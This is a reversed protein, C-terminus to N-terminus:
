DILCIFLELLFLAIFFVVGMEVAASISDQGSNRRLLEGAADAESVYPRRDM